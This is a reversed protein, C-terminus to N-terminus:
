LPDAQATAKAICPPGSYRVIELRGQADRRMKVKWSRSRYYRGIWSRVGTKTITWGSASPTQTQDFTKILTWGDILRANTGIDFLRWVGRCLSDFMSPLEGRGLKVFIGLHSIALSEAYLLRPDSKTSEAVLWLGKVKSKM